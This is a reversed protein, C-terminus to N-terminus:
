QYILLEYCAYLLSKDPTYLGARIYIRLNYNYPFTESSNYTALTCEKAYQKSM